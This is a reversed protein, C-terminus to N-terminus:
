GGRLAHWASRAVPAALGLLLGAVLGGAHAMNAVPGVLKQFEPSWCLFFWLMLWLVASPQVHLGLDPEYRTKMWVYGLLGYVVGSMGGFFPWPQLEVGGSDWKMHGLYYEALNSPVAIALVFLLLRWGGRRGEVAGGLQYLMVMDFVLHWIGFHLFIPTVLRWVQGRAIQRLGPWRVWGDEGVQYSAISLHQTLEPSGQKPWQTFFYVVVCAAVLGATVPRRRDTVAALRRRLREERQQYAAEAQDEKRRLAAAASAAATFRPDAPNREYAELEQRAQALRDEDCVWVAWGGGEALLRTDIKLTLLYDALTRAAAASPLTALQRM